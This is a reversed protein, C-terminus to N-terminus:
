SNKQFFLTLSTNEGNNNRFNHIEGAHSRLEFTITKISDTNVMFFDLPTFSYFVPAGPVYNQKYPLLKLVNSYCDAILSPKVFDAYVFMWTPIINLKKDADYKKNYINLLTKSEESNKLSTIPLGTEKELKKATENQYYEPITFIFNFKSTLKKEDLPEVEYCTVDHELTDSITFHEFADNLSTYNKIAFFTYMEEFNRKTLGYVNTFNTFELPSVCIYVKYKDYEVNFIKFEGNEDTFIKIEKTANQLTIMLDKKSLIRTEESYFVLRVHNELIDTKRNFLAVVIVYSVDKKKVIYDTTQKFTSITPPLEAYALAVKWEGKLDLESPLEVTFKSPNNEPYNKTPNSSVQTYFFDANTKMEKIRAKIITPPGDEMLLRSGNPQRLQFSITELVSGSIRYFRRILTNMHIIHGHKNLVDIRAVIKKFDGECFYPEIEECVLNVYSSDTRNLLVPTLSIYQYGKTMTHFDSGIDSSSQLLSSINLLRALNKHIKIGDYFAEIMLKVGNQNESHIVGCFVPHIFQDLMNQISYCKKFTFYNAGSDNQFVFDHDTNEYYIPTYEFNIQEIDIYLSYKWPRVTKAPKAFNNTFKTRTNENFTSLCGTSISLFSEESM